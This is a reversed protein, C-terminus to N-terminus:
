EGTLVVMRLRSEPSACLMCGSERDIFLLKGTPKNKDDVDQEIVTVKLATPHKVEVAEMNMHRPDKEYSITEIYLLDGIKVARALKYKYRM